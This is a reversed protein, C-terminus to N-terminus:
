GPDVGTREDQEHQKEENRNQSELRQALHRAVVSIAILIDILDRNGTQTQPPENM